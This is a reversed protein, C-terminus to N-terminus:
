HSHGIKLLTNEFYFERERKKKKLYAQIMTGEEGVGGLPETRSCLTFVNPEPSNFRWLFNAFKGLLCTIKTEKIRRQDGSNIRWNSELNNKFTQCCWSYCLNQKDSLPVMGLCEGEERTELLPQRAHCWGGPPLCLKLLCGVDKQLFPSERSLITGFEWKSFCFYTRM